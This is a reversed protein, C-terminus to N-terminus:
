ETKVVNSEIFIFSKLYPALDDIVIEALGQGMCNEINLVLRNHRM